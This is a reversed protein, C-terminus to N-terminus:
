VTRSLTFAAAVRHVGQERAYAAGGRPQFFQMEGDYYKDTTDLTNRISAVVYSTEVHGTEVQLTLYAARAQEYTKASKLAGLLAKMKKKLANMDPRKYEIKAFSEM